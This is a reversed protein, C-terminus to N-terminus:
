PDSRLRDEGLVLALRKSFGAFGDTANKQAVPAGVTAKGLLAVRDRVGEALLAGDVTFGVFDLVELTGDEFPM